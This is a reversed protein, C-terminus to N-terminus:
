KRQREMKKYLRYIGEFIFIAIIGIALGFVLSYGTRALGLYLPTRIHMFTNIVSTLGIVSALGFVIPWIKFRRISTYVLLMIAPFAFLFEKTRPRAILDAELTNRMLMEFTSPVLESDHGTRLIYYAGLAGGILALVVMWIKISSNMMDKLDRFELEGPKTKLIGFGYYALYALPFFAIPLLQAAKVGRFIDIELMHGIDSIPAATIMGGLLSILVGGSLVLIGKLIITTLKEDKDSSDAYDKSQKMVFVIALCGFIVAGAFSTLILTIGPLIAYIGAIGLVGLVFLGLKMKRSIPLITRILLVAAAVVGLAMLMKFITSVPNSGMASAQGLTFGQETLRAELKKFMTEYIEPDTIYVHNDKFDMIPKYYIVRINREVVARYLTNEIEETGSYGYYQYRNQIYNWVTFVRVTNFQTRNVIDILGQQMINQLQTTNEILGVKIKNENLFNVTAETGDDFGITEEGSFLAYAPVSKLNKYDAFVAEAFKKDNWGNYGATRPIVQMGASEIKEVKEPLLGLSIYMLKSSIIKDKEVFGIRKSNMEKYKESYLANKATGNLLIYGGNGEPYLLYQKEQYRKTLAQAVFSYSEQTGAEILVDFEDFGKTNLAEIFGKPYDNKWNLQDLVTRMMKASIAIDRNAMLTELNEEALGVKDFGMTQFEKLWWAIDHESQASMTFAEQYDLIMDYTKAKHEIAMRGSIVVLAVILGLVSLSVLIKNEKLFANM